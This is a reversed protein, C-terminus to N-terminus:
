WFFFNIFYIVEHITELKSKSTETRDKYVNESMRSMHKTLPCIIKPM